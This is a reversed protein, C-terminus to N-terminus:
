YIASELAFIDMRRDAHDYDAWPLAKCLIFTGAMFPPPGDIWIGVLGAGEWIDDM